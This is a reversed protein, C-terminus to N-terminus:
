NMTEYSEETGKHLWLRFCITLIPGSSVQKLGMIYFQARLNPGFLTSRRIIINFNTTVHFWYLSASHRPLAQITQSARATHKWTWSLSFPEEESYFRVVVIVLISFNVKYGSSHSQTRKGMIKKENVFNGRCSHSRLGHILLM